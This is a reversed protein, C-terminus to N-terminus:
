YVQDSFFFFFSQVSCQKVRSIDKEELTNMAQKPWDSHSCILCYVLSSFMRRFISCFQHPPGFARSFALKPSNVVQVIGYYVEIVRWFKQMVMTQLKKQSM